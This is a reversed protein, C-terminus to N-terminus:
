EAGGGAKSLRDLVAQLGARTLLVSPFRLLQATNVDAARVLDVGPLNRAALAVNPELRDVVVLVPREIELSALLGAFLRTKAEPLSLDDLVRLAGARVKESFARRFALRSVKERCQQLLDPLELRGLRGHGNRRPGPAGHKVRRGAAAGRLGGRSFFAFPGWLPMEWLAGAFGVFLTGRRIAALNQGNDSANQDDREDRVRRDM